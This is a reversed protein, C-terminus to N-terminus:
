ESSLLGWDSLKDKTRRIVEPLTAELLPTLEVGISIDQPQVGILHLHPPLHGRMNAYWLVEQFTVQHQSLKIGTYLPIDKGELEIITGPPKNANVVDILLLYQSEEVYELLNLGLVGGDLFEVTPAALAAQSSLARVAHVGYGEDKNLLNGLGMVIRRTPLPTTVAM